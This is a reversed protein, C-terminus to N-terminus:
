PGVVAKTAKTDTGADLAGEGGDAAAASGKSSDPALAVRM